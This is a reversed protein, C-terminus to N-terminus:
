WGMQIQFTFRNESYSYPKRLINYYDIYSLNSDRNEYVYNLRLSLRQSFHYGVEALWQTIDDKRHQGQLFWFVGWNMYNPDYVIGESYKNKQYKGGITAFLYKSFQHHLNLGVGTATFYNNVNFASQDAHRFIKSNLDTFEALRLRLGADAVVGSYDEFNLNMYESFEMKKYGIKAFGSLKRQADGEWGISFRDEKYGKETTYVGIASYLYNDDMPDSKLHEYEFVISALPQYHYKWSLGASKQTYSYFPIRGSDYDGKFNVFDYGIHFELTNLATVPVSYAVKANNRSFRTTNWVVESDPSFQDTQQVGQLYHDTITLISNNSFRFESELAGGWTNHHLLDYDEYDKYEYQVALNIYSNEFPLEFAIQPRIMWINDDFKDGMSEDVLFINDSHTYIFEVSPKFYANGWPIGEQYEQCFATLSFFMVVAFFVLYKRMKKEKGLRYDSAGFYEM